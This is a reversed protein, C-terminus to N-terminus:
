RAQKVLKGKVRRAREGDKLRTFTLDMGTGSLTRDYRQVEYTGDAAVTLAYVTLTTRVIRAWSVEGGDLPDGNEKARWTGKGTPVFTRTSTKRRVNPSKPDGGERIVSTWTLTFGDGAPATVVDFDRPTMAFYAQDENEAVGFGTYTGYFAAISLNQAAAPFAPAFWLLLLLSWARMM